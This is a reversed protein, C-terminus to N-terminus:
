GNIKHWYLRSLHILYQIDQRLGLKSKGFKRDSFTYPIEVIKKTGSKVIVELAIKYGTPNLMKGSLLSKRFFFFGSLPDKLGTIPRAILGAGRSIFRRRIPWNEVKGGEVYRSAVTIDARKEAIPRIMEPIVEPPHSLDADMVGVIEGDAIKLGEIVASSLGMKGSRRVVKVDCTKELRCVEEATGDPSNDDVVVVEGNLGNKEFVGFIRSLLMPMNEKENYTPIIISVEHGNM